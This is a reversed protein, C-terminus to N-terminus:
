RRPLPTDITRRQLENTFAQSDGEAYDICEQIVDAVRQAAEFDSQEPAIRKGVPVFPDTEGQEMLKKRLLLSKEWYQLNNLGSDIKFLEGRLEEISPESKLESDDKVSGGNLATDWLEKNQKVVAEYDEKSVTSEKLRKLAEVANANPDIEKEPQDPTQDEAFMQLDLKFPRTKM